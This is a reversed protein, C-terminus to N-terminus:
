LAQGDVTTLGHQIADDLLQNWRSQQAANRGHETQADYRVQVRGGTAQHSRIAASAGSTNRAVARGAALGTLYTIDSHGQEHKLLEATKSAGIRVRLSDASVTVTVDNGSWAVDFKCKTDADMSQGNEPEINAVEEFMDWSLVLRPTPSMTVPMGIIGQRLHTQHQVM